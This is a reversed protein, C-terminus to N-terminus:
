QEQRGYDGTMHINRHCGKCPVMLDFRRPAKGLTYMPAMDRNHTQCLPCVFDWYPVGDLEAGVQDQMLGDARYPGEQELPIFVKVHISCWQCNTLVEDPTKDTLERASNEGNCKPCIWHDNYARSRAPM